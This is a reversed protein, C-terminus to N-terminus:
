AVSIKLERLFDLDDQSMESSYCLDRVQTKRCSLDEAGTIEAEGSEAGEDGPKRFGISAELVVYANYGAKEMEAMVAAFRESEALSSNIAEGLEDILHQLEKEM